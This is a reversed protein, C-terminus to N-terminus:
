IHRAILFTITEDKLGLKKLDDIVAQRKEQAIRVADDKVQKEAALELVSKAVIKDDIIKHTEADLSEITARDVMKVMLGEVVSPDVSVLKQIIKGNDDFVLYDPM